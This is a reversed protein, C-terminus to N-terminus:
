ARIKYLTQRLAGPTTATHRKIFRDFAAISSFGLEVGLQKEEEWGLSLRAM